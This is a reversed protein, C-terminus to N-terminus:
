TVTFHMTYNFHLWQKHHLPLDTWWLANIFLVFGLERPIQTASSSSIRIQVEQSKKGNSSKPRSIGKEIAMECKGVAIADQWDTTLWRLCDTLWDNLWDFLWNTQSNARTMAGRNTSWIRFGEIGGRVSSSIVSTSCRRKEWALNHNRM